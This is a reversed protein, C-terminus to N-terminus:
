DQMRLLLECEWCRIECNALSEDGGADVSTRYGAEWGEAERQGRKDWGLLESCQNFGHSHTRVQCECKGGSRKWAQRLVEDSFAV